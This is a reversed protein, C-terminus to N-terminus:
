LISTPNFGPTKKLGGPVGGTSQGALVSAPDQQTIGGQGTLITGQRGPSSLMTKKLFDSNQNYADIRTKEAVGAAMNTMGGVKAIQSSADVARQDFNASNKDFASFDPSAM